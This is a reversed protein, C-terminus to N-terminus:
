YSWSLSSCTCIWWTDAMSCLSGRMKEQNKAAKM